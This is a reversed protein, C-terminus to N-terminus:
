HRHVQQRTGSIRKQGLLGSQAQMGLWREAYNSIEYRHYGYDELIERTRVYMQRETDEDPLEEAHRGEGYRSM